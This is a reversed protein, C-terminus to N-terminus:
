KIANVFHTTKQDIIASKNTVIWLFWHMFHEAYDEVALTQAYESVYDSAKCKGSKTDSDTRCIDEFAERQTDHYYYFHHALEHTVIKQFIHELDRLVFFNTCYNIKLLLQETDYSVHVWQSTLTEKIEYKGHFVDCSEVFQFTIKNKLEDIDAQTFVDEQLLDYLAEAVMVEMLAQIRDILERESDSMGKKFDGNIYTFTLKTGLLNAYRENREILADLYELKTQYGYILDSFWEFDKIIGTDELVNMHKDRLFGQTKYFIHKLACYTNPSYNRIQDQARGIHEYIDRSHALIDAHSRGNYYDTLKDEIYREYEMAHDISEFACQEEITALIDSWQIFTYMDTQAIWLQQERAQIITQPDAFAVGCSGFLFMSGLLFYKKM